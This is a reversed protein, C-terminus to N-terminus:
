YLQSSLLWYVMHIHSSRTYRLMGYILIPRRFHLERIMLHSKLRMNGDFFLSLLFTQLIDHQYMWGEMEM